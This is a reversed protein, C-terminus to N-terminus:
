FYSLIMNYLKSIHVPEKPINFNSTPSCFVYGKTDHMGNKIAVFVVENYFNLELQNNIILHDEQKIEHPYTLTVFLSKEREEIESFIVLNKEKTKISELIKKADNLDSDSNFIIEFDRTMRPMVKLFKIGIKKLFFNHDKLRYYFKTMNYPVQRLGTAIFLQNGNNTLKLYDGIIQDYVELMDEIPDSSPDVYWKPNQPLNKIHATNFFYHHQIHAGANLFISSFHPMKKKLLYIHTMHILYDLVLSRKWPKAISSIILKILYPTNRYHLTRIFIEFITIVSNFSLKGSSNDNVSQKLMSSLRRSFGSNDSHTDTWPDAIFYAPNKLKNEANMPSIAGVKFGNNEIVEFVQREGNHNVIDGLRFIGHQNYNKGLHVSAWQIWPELNKYEDEAFTFFNKYFKKILRLNNFQLKKKNSTYKEVLDFNIENLQIFLLRLSM